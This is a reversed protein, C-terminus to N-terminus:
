VQYKSFHPAKRATAYSKNVNLIAFELQGYGNEQVEMDRKMIWCRM